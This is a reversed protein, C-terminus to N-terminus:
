VNKSPNQPERAPHLPEDLKERDYGGYVMVTSTFVLRKVGKLRAAEFVNYTTVINSTLIDTWSAEGPNAALHVVVDAEPLQEIVTAFDTLDAQITPLQPHARRDKLILEHRDRLGEVVTQGVCGSAGTIVIRQSM